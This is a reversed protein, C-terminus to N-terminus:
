DEERRINHQQHEGNNERSAALDLATPAVVPHGDQYDTQIDDLELTPLPESM